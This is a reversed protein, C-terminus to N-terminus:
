AQQPKFTLDDANNRAIIRNYLNETVPSINSITNKDKQPPSIEEHTIPRFKKLLDDDPDKQATLTPAYRSMLDTAKYM